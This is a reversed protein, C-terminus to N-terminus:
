PCVQGSAVWTRLLGVFEAHPIPVPERGQGPEWAWTVLPDGGNMHAILSKGDRDGNRTRDRLNLCIDTGSIGRWAMSEPPLPWHGEGAGPVRSTPNNQAGHCNACRLVTGGLNDDGRAVRPTHARPVNGQLPVVPQHCNLCRPHQLVRVIGDWARLGQERSVSPSQALSAGGFSVLVVAITLGLWTGPLDAPVGRLLM